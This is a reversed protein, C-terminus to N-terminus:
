SPRVRVLFTANFQVIQKDPLTAGGVRDFMSVDEVTSVSGVGAVSRGEMGHVNQYVTDAIGTGDGIGESFLSLFLNWEWGAGPYGNRIMHGNGGIFSLLPLTDFSEVDVRPVVTIGPYALLSFMLKEFDVTIRPLLSIAM